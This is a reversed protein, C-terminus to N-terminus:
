FSALDNFPNNRNYRPKPDYTSDDRTTLTTKECDGNYDITRTTHRSFDHEGLHSGATSSLDDDTDLHFKNHSTDIMRNSNPGYRNPILISAHEDNQHVDDTDTEDDTEYKHFMNHKRPQELLSAGEEHGSEKEGQLKTFSSFLSQDGDVSQIDSESVSTDDGSKQNHMMTSKPLYGAASGDDDDAYMSTNTVLKSPLMAYRKQQRIQFKSGYSLATAAIRREAVSARVIEQEKEDSETSNEDNSHHSSAGDNEKPVESRSSPSTNLERPVSITNKTTGSSIIQKKDAESNISQNKKMSDANRCAERHNSEVASSMSLDDDDDSSLIQQAIIVMQSPTKIIKHTSFLAQQQQEPSLIGSTTGRKGKEPTTQEDGFATTITDNDSGSRDAAGADDMQKQQLIYASPLQLSGRKNLILSMQEDARVSWTGNRTNTDEDDTLGVNYGDGVSYAEDQLMDGLNQTDIYSYVSSIESQDQQVQITRLANAAIHDGDSVNSSDRTSRNFESTGFQLSQNILNQDTLAKESLITKPIFVSSAKTNNYQKAMATTESLTLDTADHSAVEEDTFNKTQKMEMIRERQERRYHFFLMTIVILVAFGCVAGAVVIAIMVPNNYNGIDVVPDSNTTATGNTTNNSSNASDTPNSPTKDNDPSTGLISSILNSQPGLYVDYAKRLSSDSSAKLLGIYEKKSNSIDFGDHILQNMSQEVIDWDVDQNDFLANGNFEYTQLITNNYQIWETYTDVLSATINIVDKAYVFSTSTSSDIIQIQRLIHYATIDTLIDIDLTMSASSSVEFFINLLLSNFPVVLEDGTTSNNNDDTMVEDDNRDDQDNDNNNEDETDNSLDSQDNFVVSPKMSPENIPTSTILHDSPQLTPDRTPRVTSVVPSKTPNNIPESTPSITAAIPSGTAAIPSETTAIPSATTAIPSGTTAIPSATTAIPSATPQLTAFSIKVDETTDTNTWNNSTPPKWVWVPKTVPATNTTTSTSTPAPVPASVSNDNSTTSPTGGNWSTTSNEALERLLIRHDKQFTELINNEIDPYSLYFFFRLM